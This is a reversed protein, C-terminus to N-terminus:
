VVVMGMDQVKMCISVGVLARLGVDERKVGDLWGFGGNRSYTIKFGGGGEM